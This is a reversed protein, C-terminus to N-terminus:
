SGLAVDQVAVWREGVHSAGDWRSGNNGGSEEKSGDRLGAHAGAIAMKVFGEKKRVVLKAVVLVGVEVKLERPLTQYIGVSPVLGQCFAWFAGLTAGVLRLAGPAGRGVGEVGSSGSVGCVSSVAAWGWSGVSVGCWALAAGRLAAGRLSRRSVNLDPM